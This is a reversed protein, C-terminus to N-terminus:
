IIYTEEGEWGENELELELYTERLLAGAKKCTYIVEDMKEPSIWDGKKTLLSQETSDKVWLWEGGNKYTTLYVSGKMDTYKKPLEEKRLAEIAVIKCFKEGFTLEKKIRITISM